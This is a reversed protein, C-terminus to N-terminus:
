NPLASSENEENWFDPNWFFPHLGHIYCNAEIMHASIVSSVGYRKRELSLTSGGLFRDREIISDAKFGTYVQLRLSLEPANRYDGNLIGVLDNIKEDSLLEKKPESPIILEEAHRVFISTMKRNLDKDFARRAEPNENIFTYIQRCLNNDYLLIEKRARDGDETRQSILVKSQLPVCEGAAVKFTTRTGLYAFALEEDGGNWRNIRQIEADEDSVLGVDETISTIHGQSDRKVVINVGHIEIELHNPEKRELSELSPSSYTVIERVVTGASNRQQSKKAGDLIAIRGDNKLNFPIHRYRKPVFPGSDKLRYGKLNGDESPLNNFFEACKAYDVDAHGTSVVVTSSFVVAAIIRM